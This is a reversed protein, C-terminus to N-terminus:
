PHQRRSDGVIDYTLKGLIREGIRDKDMESGYLILNADAMSVGAKQFIDQLQRLYTENYAHKKHLLERVFQKHSQYIEELGFFRITSETAEFESSGEPADNKLKLSFEDNNGVLAQVNQPDDVEFHVLDSFGARYPNWINGFSDKKVMRNCVLCVPVLNYLSLALLPFLSQPYFHDLDATVHQKGSVQFSTIYQRNCYPCVELRFAQKVQIKLGADIMEYKVFRRLCGNWGEFVAEYAKLLILMERDSGCAQQPMVTRLPYEAMLADIHHCDLYERRKERYYPRRAHGTKACAAKWKERERGYCCVMRGMDLYMGAWHWKAALEEIPRSLLADLFSDDLAGSSALIGSKALAVLFDPPFGPSEQVFAKKIDPIIRKRYDEEILAIGKDKLYMM